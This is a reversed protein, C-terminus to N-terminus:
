FPVSGRITTRHMRRRQPLAYDQVALHQLSCNDWMLLDGVRWRHRYIFQPQTCHAYIEDLLPGSESDPMGVIGTCCLKNVYICKRGTVPHTRIIPHAQDSVERRQSEDYSLRGGSSKASDDSDYGKTMRHIARLGELREKMAPSLADYALFTSAFLTDGVPQGAADHPIELAHLASGMSPESRYSTDTHWVAVRDADALGILKGNEVINSIVLIEPQGPLLYQKLVHIELEGFRRSFAVQQAPTLRQDHFVIISREFYADRIRAFTADDLPKSLDVGAIEAGFPTALPRISLQSAVVASM